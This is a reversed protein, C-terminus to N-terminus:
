IGNRVTWYLPLFPSVEQGGLFVVVSVRFGLGEYRFGLGQRGYLSVM